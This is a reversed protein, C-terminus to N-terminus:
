YHLLTVVEKVLTCVTNHHKVVQQQETAQVAQLQKFTYAIAIVDYVTTAGCRYLIMLSM